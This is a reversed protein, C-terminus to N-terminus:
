WAIADRRMTEDPHQFVAGLYAVAAPSRQAGLYDLARHRVAPHADGLFRAVAGVALDDRRTMLEALAEARAMPDPDDARDALALIARPDGAGGGYSGSAAATGAGCLLCAAVGLVGWARRASM